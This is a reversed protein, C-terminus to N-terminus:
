LRSLLWRQDISKLVLYMTGIIIWVLPSRNPLDTYNSKRMAKYRQQNNRKPSSICQVIIQNNALIMSYPTGSVVVTTRRSVASTYISRNLAFQQVLVQLDLLNPLSGVRLDFEHLIDFISLQIGHLLVIQENKLLLVLQQLLLFPM